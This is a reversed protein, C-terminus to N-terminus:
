GACETGYRGSNDSLESKRHNEHTKQPIVTFGPSELTSSRGDGFDWFYTPPGLTPPVTGRGSFLLSDGAVVTGSRIPADISARSGLRMQVQFSGTNDSWNWTDMTGLFLRTAGAPVLVSQTKGASTIGDGIFFTQKLAPALLLYDRSSETTFDLPPPSPSLDPQEAALFVGLLSDYPVAINAVGHEAGANHSAVTAADGDPGDPPHSSHYTVRGTASFQLTTGPIVPFGTVAVPSDAPAVDPSSWGPHEASARTGDPMGSLWPDSRGPVVVFRIPEDMGGGYGYWISIWCWDVSCDDTNVRIYKFRNTITATGSYTTWGRANALMWFRTWNTGDLSHYLYATTVCGTDGAGPRIQFDFTVNAMEIGVDMVHGYAHGGTPDRTWCCCIGNDFANTQECSVSLDKPYVVRIPLTLTPGPSAPRVSVRDDIM